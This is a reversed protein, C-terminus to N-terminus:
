RGWWCMIPWKPSSDKWDIVQVPVSLRVLVVLLCFVCIVCLLFPGNTLLVVCEFFDLSLFLVSLAQNLRRERCGAVFRLTDTREVGSGARCAFFVIYIKFTCLCLGITKDTGQMLCCQSVLWFAVGAPISWSKRWERTQCVAVAIVSVNRLDALLFTGSWTLFCVSICCICHFDVTYVMDWFLLGSEIKVIFEAFNFWNEYSKECNYELLM